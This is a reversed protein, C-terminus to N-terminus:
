CKSSDRDIRKELEDALDRLKSVIIGADEGFKFSLCWYYGTEENESDAILGRLFRESFPEYPSGSMDISVLKLM